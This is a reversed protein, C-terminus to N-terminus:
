RRLSTCCSTTPRSEARLDTHEDLDRLAVPEGAGAAVAVREDVRTVHVAVAIAAVIEDVDRAVLALDGEVGYVGRPPAVIERAPATSGAEVREDLLVLIQALM